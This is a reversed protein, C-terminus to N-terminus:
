QIALSALRSLAVIGVRSLIKTKERITGISILYLIYFLLNSLSLPVMKLLSDIVHKTSPDSSIADPIANGISEYMADPPGSIIAPKSAVRSFM